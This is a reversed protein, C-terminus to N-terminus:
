AARDQRQRERRDSRVVLQVASSRFVFGRSVATRVQRWHPEKLWRRELTLEVGRLTLREATLSAETDPRQARRVTELSLGPMLWEAPIQIEAPPVEGPGPEAIAM